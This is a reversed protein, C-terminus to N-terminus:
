NSIGNERIVLIRDDPAGFNLMIRAREELMDPDLNDPKLLSVRLEVGERESMLQELEVQGETLQQSMQWWAILGRDGQITHYAFYSFVAAGLISPVIQHLRRRYEHNAIM